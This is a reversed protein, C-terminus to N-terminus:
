VGDLELLLEFKRERFFGSLERRALQAEGCGLFRRAFFFPAAPNTHTGTLGFMALGL